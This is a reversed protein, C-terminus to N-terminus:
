SRPSIEEAAQALEVVRRIFPAKAETYAARDRAFRRALEAKLRAYERAADPHARLYDRFLLHERWFASDPTVVHLHHTRLPAGKTFYHRGPLGNEGKYVYGIAALPGVCPEVDRLDGVAAMVDIIPKAALGPVSTSGVHEFALVRGAVASELLRREEEFLPPWESSYPALRVSERELGLM